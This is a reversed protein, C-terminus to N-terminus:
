KQEERGETIRYAHGQYDIRWVGFDTLVYAETGEGSPAAIIQARASQQIEEDM